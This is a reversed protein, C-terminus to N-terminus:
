NQSTNNKILKLQVKEVSISENQNFAAVVLHVEHLQLLLRFRTRWSFGSRCPRVYNLRLHSDWVKANHTFWACIDGHWKLWKHSHLPIKGTTHIGNSDILNVVNTKEEQLAQRSPSPLQQDTLILLSRNTMNIQPSSTFSIPFFVTPNSSGPQDQNLYNENKSLPKVIFM